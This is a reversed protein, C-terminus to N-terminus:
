EQCNPCFFTKRSVIEQRQIPQGCRRCPENERDYVLLHHNYGGTETDGAYVPDDMYGGLRIADTLVPRIAAFLSQRAREDLEGVKKTPRVGATFCIEDSYCNGIGAIVKQDVLVMKIAGKKGRLRTQFAALDLAPDFPEPGLAAFKRDREETTLLHLYGLRLGIFFLKTGGFTLIVQKTRQPSYADTGIYMWGGLMLHLVLHKGTNLNFVLHKARREIGTVTAGRVAELFDTVPVNVSKERNVEADTIQKGAFRHVLVRKYTEMEPLEPMCSREKKSTGALM